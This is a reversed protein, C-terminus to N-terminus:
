ECIKRPVTLISLEKSMIWLVWSSQVNSWRVGEEYNLKHLETLSQWLFLLKSKSKFAVVGYIDAFSNGKFIM